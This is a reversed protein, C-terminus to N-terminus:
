LLPLHNRMRRGLYFVASESVCSAFCLSKKMQESVQRDRMGSWDSYKIVILTDNVNGCIWDEVLTCFMNLHIIMENTVFDFVLNYMKM